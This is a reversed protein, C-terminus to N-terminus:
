AVQDAIYMSSLTIEVELDFNRWSLGFHFGGLVSNVLRQEEGSERHVKSIAVILKGVTFQLELNKQRFNVSQEALSLDPAEFSGDDEGTPLERTHKPSHEEDSPGYTLSDNNSFFAPM